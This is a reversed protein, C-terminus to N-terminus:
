FWRGIARINRRRAIFEADGLHRLGRVVGLAMGLLLFAAAILVWPGRTRAHDIYNLIGFSWGLAVISFVIVPIRVFLPTFAVAVGVLLGIAFWHTGSGLASAAGHPHTIGSAISM